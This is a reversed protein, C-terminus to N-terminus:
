ELELTDIGNGCGSDFKSALLVADRASLGLHMAAIAYDRGSGMAFHADEFVLPQPTREYKLTRGGEIVLLDVYDTDSAPRPFADPDRGNKVWLFSAEARDLDGSGAVLLDGFRHIKTVTRILGSCTAQKDAALTRGDWAIVTM